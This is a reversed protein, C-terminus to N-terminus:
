KGEYLEELGHAIAYSKNTRCQELCRNPWYHMAIHSWDYQGDQLREWFKKPESKWIPIVEWLPAIRLIVGDDIWNEEPTYGPLGDSGLTIRELTQAFEALEDLLKRTQDLQKELSRRRAGQASGLQGEIEELQYRVANIKAELYPKRQIEYFTDKTIKEHFIVFGYSRNPSQIPWYIPRKKYWKMHWKTLFDRELFKRLSTTSSDGTAEQIVEKAQAEGLMLVLAKEVRAALDRPHGDDLVAIGDPLALDRLAQEVEATFVHRGGADDIYAFQEPPGVLEEFEGKEPAPLSGIAFDDPHYIARGLKGAIGPLFHGVAIGVSYSIWHVALELDTLLIENEDERTQIEFPISESDDPNVLEGSLEAEIATRDHDNLKYLDYVYNNIKQDIGIFFDTLISNANRSIPQVFLFSKEDQTGGLVKAQIALRITNNFEIGANSIAIPIRKLDGVQFNITPNILNLAYGAFRSNLVALLHFNNTEEFPFICSGAVDFIAGPPLYRVSFRGSSLYSYTIGENFYYDSSNIWAAWLDGTANPSYKKRKANALEKMEIGDNFWNVVNVNEGFWRRFGEGKVYPFWRYRTKQAEELSSIGLKVNDIGVEWWFNLFRFNDSTAAGQRPLAIQDLSPLTEFIRRIDESIWYVWPNGPIADFRGQAVRYIGALEEVNNLRAVMQEFAVQKAEADAEHVLRFYTGTHNFRQIPNQEHRFVFATTQLTGPNGTAFLGPGLHAMSKILSGKRVHARLDEYSSIFMFSHMTLMGVYGTKGAFELCRLIFAAFLDSKGEPYNQDLLKALETNMKRRSLYPPNTVVVDYERLMLDLVQMGKIAEGAFFSQDAGAEAQAKAFHDIAQIIQGGLIAWYEEQAAAAEFEDSRDVFMDIQRGEREYRAREDAILGEVEQELRLLSGLQNIDELKEWLARILREYIPRSFQAEKLFVGLRKGNLTLVDASVLNHRTITVEENLSKAKLYLALAALQVARLDIDIGYLNNALIAAPIEAEAAVSPSEPWGPEGAHQLEERYMEAFLDFALVGFHMTGCAPDLLTIESVAKLAVATGSEGNEYPDPVLYRLKDKLASDPHMELWLRGLTNEVLYRVIWRITFLQTASPIDEAEFKAGDSVASFAAQLEPENFYQYVWGIAEETNWAPTIEAANLLALVAELVQGRPFLRSPLSEPDFLVKIEQAIQRAQWTLFHQYALEAQGAQWLAQDDPHDALYFLFGTSKTGRGVAERILKRREMMKFAVLRNLHTFAIEKRLKEVAEPRDLGAQIEEELFHILREYIARNEPNSLAPLNQPPEFKGSTHVGYVGELLDRAENMLIRRAELAFDHIAGRVQDNLLNDEFIGGMRGDGQM